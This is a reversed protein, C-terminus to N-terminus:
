IWRFYHLFISETCPLKAMSRLQCYMRFHYFSMSALHRDHVENLTYKLIDVDHGNGLFHEPYRSMADGINTLTRSISGRIVALSTLEAVLSNYDRALLRNGQEDHIPEIDMKQLRMRNYRARSTRNHAPSNFYLHRNPLSEPLDYKYSRPQKKVIGLPTYIPNNFPKPTTTKSSKKTFYAIPTLLSVIKQRTPIM